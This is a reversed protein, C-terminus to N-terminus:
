ENNTINNIISIVSNTTKITNESNPERSNEYLFNLVFLTACGNVHLLGLSIGGSELICVHLVVSVKLLMPLFM